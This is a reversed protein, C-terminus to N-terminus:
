QKSCAFRWLIQDVSGPQVPEWKQEDSDSFVVNGRGMNGSFSTVALMRSRGEACDYETQRKVSWYTDGVKTQIKNNDYLHWMKVLDGNRRITDLDAYVTMGDDTKDISVWEAYAPGSSLFLLIILILRTM